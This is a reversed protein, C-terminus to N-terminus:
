KGVCFRSFISDLIAETVNEGSINSLAQVASRLGITWLDIPHGTSLDGKLVNLDNLSAQLHGLQRQNLLYAGTDQLYNKQVLEVIRSKLTELGSATKASIFIGESAVKTQTSVSLDLKNFVLLRPIDYEDVRQIWARDEDQIGKSVDVVYLVVSATALAQKTKEIGMQEVVDAAQRLGATDVLSLRFEDILVDAEVQDRTTGPTEAVLARHEGLLANFVSSKGANPQGAIVARVGQQLHLVKSQGAMLGKLVAGCQDVCELLMQRLSDTSHEEPYDLSVEIRALMELLRSRIDGLERSLYGQHQRVSRRLIEASRAEVMAQVSEAQLLDMKGNLFARRTFEGPAALRVGTDQLKGLISHLIVPNGHLHLELVDEGTYSFPAKFYVLLGQDLIMGDHPDAFSFGLMTRPQAKVKSLLAKSVFPAVSALAQPGSIRIIGVGGVGPATAIAAITGM